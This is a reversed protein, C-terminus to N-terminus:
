AKGLSVAHAADVTGCWLAGKDMMQADRTSMGACTGRMDVEERQHSTRSARSMEAQLWNGFGAISGIVVAMLMWETKRFRM